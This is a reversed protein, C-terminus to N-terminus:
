AAASISPSWWWWVPALGIAILAGTVLIGGWASLGTEGLLNVLRASALAFLFGGLGFLMVLAGATTM